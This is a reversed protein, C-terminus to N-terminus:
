VAVATLSSEIQPLHKLRVDLYDAVDSYTILGLGKAELVLSTFLPGNEAVCKKAPAVAAGGKKIRKARAALREMAAHFSAKPVLGLERLRWLAVQESVKFERAVKGMADYIAQGKLEAEGSQLVLSLAHGPVLFAAAFNNCWRELEAEHKVARGDLQPLCIGPRHLLLHAYEHFLTFVRARVADSASVVIAYPEEDALSFGRADEVPVPLQFVLINNREIAARWQRFAEWENKWNLQAEVETGLRARAANAAEESRESVSANGLRPAPGRGAAQMLEKAVSRLRQAKRVALRTNRHLRPRSGPITRFDQPPSPEPPPAPLLFAALPRKFYSALARAQTLTLSTGEAEGRSFTSLPVKLRKAADEIPVGSTERAWRLVAPNVPIQIASAM